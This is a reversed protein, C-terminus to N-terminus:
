GGDFADAVPRNIVIHVIRGEKKCEAVAM